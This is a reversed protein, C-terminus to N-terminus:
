RPAGRINKLGDGGAIAVRKLAALAEVRRASDAARQNESGVQQLVEQRLVAVAPPAVIGLRVAGGEVALVTVVIDNGIVLSEGPRRALVLM